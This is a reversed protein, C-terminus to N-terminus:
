RLRRSEHSFPVRGAGSSEGRDSMEAAASSALNQRSIMACTQLITDRRECRDACRHISLSLCVSLRKRYNELTRM